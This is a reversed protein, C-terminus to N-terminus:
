MCGTDEEAVAGERRAETRFAWLFAWSFIADIEDYVLELVLWSNGLVSKHAM